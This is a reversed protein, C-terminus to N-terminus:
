EEYQDENFKGKLIEVVKQLNEVQIRLLHFTKSNPRKSKELM